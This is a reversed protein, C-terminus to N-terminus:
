GQQGNLYVTLNSYAQCPMADVARTPQDTESPHTRGM